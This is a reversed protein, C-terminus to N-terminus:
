RKAAERRAEEREAAKRAAAAAAVEAFDAPHAAMCAQLADFSSLCGPAAAGGPDPPGAQARLFCSFAAVFQAGCPGDRLDAVCPCAIAEEISRELEQSPLPPRRPPPGNTEACLREERGRGRLM